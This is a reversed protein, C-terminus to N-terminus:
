GVHTQQLKNITFYRHFLISARGTVGSALSFRDGLYNIMQIGNMRQKLEYEPLAPLTTFVWKTDIASTSMPPKM